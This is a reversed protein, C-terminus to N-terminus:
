CLKAVQKFVFGYSSLEACLWTPQLLSMLREWSKENVPADSNSALDFKVQPWQVEVSLALIREEDLEIKCNVAEGTSKKLVEKTRESLPAGFHEFMSFANSFNQHKLGDFIYFRICRSAKLPSFSFHVPIPNNIQYCWRALNERESASVLFKSLHRREMPKEVGIGCDVESGLKLYFVITLPSLSVLFDIQENLVSEQFKHVKTIKCIGALQRCFERILSFERLGDVEHSITLTRGSSDLNFYSKIDENMLVMEELKSFVHELWLETVQMLESYNVKDRLMVKASSKIKNATSISNEFEKKLIATQLSPYTSSLNSSCHIKPSTQQSLLLESQDKCLSSKCGM